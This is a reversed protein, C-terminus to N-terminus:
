RSQDQPKGKPSAPDEAHPQGAGPGGPARKRTVGIRRQYRKGKKAEADGHEGSALFDPMKAEGKGFQEMFRAAAEVELGELLGMVARQTISDQAVFWEYVRGAADQVKMGYAAAIKDIAEKGAWTVGIKVVTAPPKKVGQKEVVWIM